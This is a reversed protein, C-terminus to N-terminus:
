ADTIGEDTSAAARPAMRPFALDTMTDNVGGDVVGSKLDNASLTPAVTASTCAACAGRSRLWSAHDVIPQDCFLIELTPSTAAAIDSGPIFYVVRM